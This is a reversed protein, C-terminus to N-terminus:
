RWAGIIAGMLLLYTLQYGGDIIFAGLPKEQAANDILGLPAAVGLWVMLGVGAGALASGTELNACLLAIFLATVLNSAIMVPFTKDPQKGMQRARQEPILHYKVWAKGFLVAYWLAGLAFTVLGAVIVAIWNIDNIAFEFM